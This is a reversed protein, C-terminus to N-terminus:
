EESDLSIRPELFSGPVYGVKHTGQHQAYWRDGSEMGIVYLHDGKKFSLGNDARSDYDFKAVFTRCGLENAPSPPIPILSEYVPPPDSIIINDAAPPYTVLPNLDTEESKGGSLCNGM